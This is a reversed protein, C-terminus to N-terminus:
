CSYSSCCINYLFYLCNFSYLFLKSLVIVTHICLMFTTCVYRRPPPPSSCPKINADLSLEDKHHVWHNYLPELESDSDRGMGIWKWHQPREKYDLFPVFNELSLGLLSLSSSFKTDSMPGITLFSTTM